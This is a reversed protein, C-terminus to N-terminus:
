RGLWGGDVPVIAGHVYDSARGAPIRDLIAANRALSGRLSRTVPGVSFDFVQDGHRGVKTALAYRDRDIGRMAKGLVTEAATRGYYPAVDIFTIGADLAAYV